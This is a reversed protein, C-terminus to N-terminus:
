CKECDGINIEWMSIRRLKLRVEPDDQIKREKGKVISHARNYASPKHIVELNMNRISKVILSVIGNDIPKKARCISITPTSYKEWDTSMGDRIERFAGPVLNGGRCFDKHIRYFLKDEDPIEEIDHM